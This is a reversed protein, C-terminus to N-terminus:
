SYIPVLTNKSPLPCLNPVARRRWRFGSQKFDTSGSIVQIQLTTPPKKASTFLSLFILYQSGTLIAKLLFNLYPILTRPITKCAYSATLLGTGRSMEGTFYLISNIHIRQLYSRKYGNLLDFTPTKVIPVYHNSKKM